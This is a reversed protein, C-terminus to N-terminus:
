NLKILELAQAKTLRTAIETWDSYQTGNILFREKVRFQQHEGYEEIIRQRM